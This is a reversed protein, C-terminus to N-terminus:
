IKKNLVRITIFNAVIVPEQQHIDKGVNKKFTTVVLVHNRIGTSGSVHFPSQSPGRCLLHGLLEVLDLHVVLSM